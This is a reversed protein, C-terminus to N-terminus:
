HLDKHCIQKLEEIVNIISLDNVEAIRKCDEYEPSYQIVADNLWKRKVRVEGWKSQVSIVDREAEYRWIPYVRM